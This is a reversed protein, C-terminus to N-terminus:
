EKGRARWRRDPGRVVPATPLGRAMFVPLRLFFLFRQRSITFASLFCAFLCVDFGLVKRNNGNRMARAQFRPM